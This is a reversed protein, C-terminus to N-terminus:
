RLSFLCRATPPRSPRMPSRHPASALLADTCPGHHLWIFTPHVAGSGACAATSRGSRSRSRLLLDARGVSTPPSSWRRAPPPSTRTTIASGEGAGAQVMVEHSRHVLEAVGAPTIAVRYGTTRSRLRSASACPTGQYPNQQVDTHLVNSSTAVVGAIIKNSEEMASCVDDLTGTRASFRLINLGDGEIVGVPPNQNGQVGVGADGITGKASATPRGTWRDGAPATPAAEADDPSRRRCTGGIARCAM